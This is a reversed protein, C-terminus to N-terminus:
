KIKTCYALYFSDLVNIRTTPHIFEKKMESIHFDPFYKIIQVNFSDKNIEKHSNNFGIILVKKNNNNCIESIYNVRKLSANGYFEFNYDNCKYMSALSNTLHQKQFKGTTMGGQYEMIKPFYQTNLFISLLSMIGIGKAIFNLNHIDNKFKLFIFIIIPLFVLVYIWGYIKFFYSLLLILCVVLITVFLLSINLVRLQRATKLNELYYATLISFHPFLIVIYHPLQFKSASFMIFTIFSATNLIFLLPNDVSFNNNKYKKATNVVAFILAISWPLYAWLTTHIFFSSEGSGKIPGNNFFRGFQSDWFFFKIGSVGQQGFVIKEPHLDFQTYLSYLEPTIFILTLLIFLYWKLQLFQKWQKNILWLFIFGAGITILVFIGKSMIALAAFLSAIVIYKLKNTITNLYIYYTAALTFTTLFVEARVDFNCLIVHLSSAFILTSSQAISTTFFGIGIKYIYYCAILYALFNPLKYAFANIGFIKYSIAALWFPLHPKDLWDSGNGYLNIFDNKQVMWKAISAYLTADPGMIDIFLGIGNCAFCLVLLFPFLYHLSLKKNELM